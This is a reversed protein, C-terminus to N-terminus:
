SEGPAFVPQRAYMVDGLHFLEIREGRDGADVRGKLYPKKDVGIQGTVVARM